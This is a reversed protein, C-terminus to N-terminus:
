RAPRMGHQLRDVAYALVNEENMNEEFQRDLEEIAKINYLAQHLKLRSAREKLLALHQQNYVLSDAGGSALVLLDRFWRLLTNLFDKRLERYRASVKAELVDKEEM